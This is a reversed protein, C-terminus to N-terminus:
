VKMLKYSNYTFTYRFTLKMLCSHKEFGSEEFRNHPVKALYEFLSFSFHLTQLTPGKERKTCCM